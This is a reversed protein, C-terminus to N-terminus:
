AGAARPPLQAPGPPGRRHGAILIRPIAALIVFSNATFVPNAFILAVPLLWPRDTRAAVVILALAVPLELLLLLATPFMVRPRLSDDTELTAAHPHRAFNVWQHWLDPALVFSGLALGASAGVGLALRRWERRAAFWILGVGPTVKTLVPLAWTWPHRFGTVLVLAFGAWVNGTAIDLSCLLYAPIRWDAPLPALLWAYIAATGALWIACFVPWPLLTLPWALQAFVPSYLYADPQEPAAGYLHDHRWAAWYAHADLGPSDTLCVAVALM